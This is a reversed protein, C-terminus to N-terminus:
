VELGEAQGKAGERKVGMSVPSPGAGDPGREM